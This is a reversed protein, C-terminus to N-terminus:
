KSGPLEYKAITEHPEALWVADGVSGVITGKTSLRAVLTAKMRSGDLEYIERSPSDALWIRSGNAAMLSLGSPVTAMHEIRGSGPDLEVIGKEGTVVFHEEAENGTAEAWAGGAWLSGDAEFLESVSLRRGSADEIPAPGSVAEIATDIRVVGDLNATVAVSDGAVALDEAPATTKVDRVVENSRPDVEAVYGRATAVWVSGGGAIAAFPIFRFAEPGEGVPATLSLPIVAVLEGTAPDFRSLTDEFINVVWVGGEGVALSHPDKVPFTEEITGTANDVKVLNGRGAGAESANNCGTDCTLVWLTGGVSASDLVRGPMTLQASARVTAPGLPEDSPVLALVLAIATVAAAAAFAYGGWRRRRRRGVDPVVQRPDIKRPEVEDLGRRLWAAIEDRNGTM